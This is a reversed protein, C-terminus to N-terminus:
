SQFDSHAFGKPFDTLASLKGAKWANLETQVSDSSTLFMKIGAEQLIQAANEGCRPTLLIQCKEDTLFQAAQIGAAGPSQAAPNEKREFQNLESEYFLFYPARGFSPCISTEDENIPIVIKM